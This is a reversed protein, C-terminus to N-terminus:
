ITGGAPKITFTPVRIQRFTVLDCRFYHRAYFLAAQGASYGTEELLLLASGAACGLLGALMDDALTARIESTQQAVPQRAHEQLTDFITKQFVSRRLGAAAEDVEILALPLRTLSYIVPTDGALFLKETAVVLEDAEIHLFAAAPGAKRKEVSLLQVQAEYGAQRILDAFAPAQDLWGWIMKPNSQVQETVFTGIGHRRVVVRALELKALAERVTARSVGYQEHLATESPLRGKEDVIEGSAIDRALEQVLQEPLPVSRGLSRM